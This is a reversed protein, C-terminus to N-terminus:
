LNPWLGLICVIRVNRHIKNNDITLCDSNAIFRANLLSCDSKQGRTSDKVNNSERIELGYVFSNTIDFGIFELHIGSEPGPM